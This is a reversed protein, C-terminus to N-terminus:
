IPCTIISLITFTLQHDKKIKQGRVHRGHKEMFAFGVHTCNFTLNSKKVRM